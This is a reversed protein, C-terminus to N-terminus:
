SRRKGHGQYRYGSSEDVYAPPLLGMESYFRLTKVPIHFVKAVEGIRFLHEKM